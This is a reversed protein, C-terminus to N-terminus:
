NKLLSLAATLAGFAAASWLMKVRPHTEFSVRITNRWLSEVNIVCIAEPITADHNQCILLPRGSDELVFGWVEYLRLDSILPEMTICNMITQKVRCHHSSEFVDNPFLYPTVRLDQLSSRKEFISYSFRPKVSYYKKLDSVAQYTSLQKLITMQATRPLEYFASMKCQPIQKITM